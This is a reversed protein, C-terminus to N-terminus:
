LRKWRGTGACNCTYGAIGDQCPAGNQCPNSECEDINTGCTDGSFGAACTCNYGGDYNNCTANNLCPTSECEDIDTECNRGEWGALLFSFM